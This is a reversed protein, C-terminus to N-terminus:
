NEADQGLEKKAANELRRISRSAAKLERRVTEPLDKLTIKQGTEGEENPELVEVWRLWRGTQNAIQFVAEEVSAPSKFPSGAPSSAEQIQRIEAYLRSASWGEKIARSQLGKRRRKDRVLLLYRVHSPSLPKGDPSRLSCLEEFQEETYTEAFKRAQWFYDPYMGRERAFTKVVETPDLQRRTKGGTADIVDQGDRYFVRLKQLAREIAPSETLSRKATASQRRKSKGM